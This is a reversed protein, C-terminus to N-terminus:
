YFKKFIGLLKLYKSFCKKYIKNNTENPYYINKINVFRKAVKKLDDYLGIAGGGIIAAGLTTFDERDFLIYNLGLIDTKIQNWVDSKSGGGIVAISNFKINPFNNKVISVSNKHEYGISELFSRYFNEKKHLWNIGSWSGRILPNNPTAQGGLHPIFYIGSPDPKLKSSKKDLNAYSGKDTSFGYFLNKVMWNHTLGGGIIYTHTLWLDKIASRHCLLTRNKEDSTFNDVAVLLAPYTAAIDVASGIENVNAALCDCAKDYAGAVIPIGSQLGCIDANKKNLKGIVTEPRVLKPMKKIDLGYEKFIEELWSNNSADYMGSFSPSTYEWFANETKLGSLHGQIFHTLPLFKFTKKYIDPYARKLWLIYNIGAPSDTGSKLRLLNGFNKVIEVSIERSRNDIPSMFHTTPLWNKDIGILGAGMGTFSMCEVRKIDISSKNITGKINELVQKFSTEGDYVMSGEPLNIIKSHQNLSAVLDGKLNYVATKISQSGLDTSIIYSDKKSMAM